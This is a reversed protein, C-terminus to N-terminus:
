VCQGIDCAGRKEQKKQLCFSRRSKQTHAASISGCAAMDRGSHERIDGKRNSGEWEGLTHDNLRLLGQPLLHPTVGATKASLGWGAWRSGQQEDALYSKRQWPRENPLTLNGGWIWPPQRLEELEGGLSSHLADLDGQFLCCIFLYYLRQLNSIM